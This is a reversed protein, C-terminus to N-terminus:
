FFDAGCLSAATLSDGNSTRDGTMAGIVDDDIVQQFGSIGAGFGLQDLRLLENLPGQQRAEVIRGFPAHNHNRLPQVLHIRRTIQEFAPGIPMQIQRGDGFVM